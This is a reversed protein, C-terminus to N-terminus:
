PCEDLREVWGLRGSNSRIKMKHFRIDIKEQCSPRPITIIVKM